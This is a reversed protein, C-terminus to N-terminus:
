ADWALYLQNPGIVNGGHFVVPKDPDLRFEPLRKLMEEYLVQLEIRALHSGLCRHPGTGFAIHVKNERALDYDEPNKFEEPDLDAAPLFMLAMEGAKMEVGEFEVDHKLFRPPVTFTYRRLLEEAAEPVLSPNERLQAQLEPHMALHRVGLGMGNMVTDLGAVTLIVCYNEIDHLTPARGDLETQWLMSIIDERPNDRRDLITERLVMAIKRQRAMTDTQDNAQFPTRLHEDVLKRYEAQRELPLGFMGLFIQVPLPEAVASMFECGGDDKVKEILEVALDRISDKLALVTKPSFTKNLPARYVGHIPPDVTIPLGLLMKHDDDLQENIAKVEEYNFPSNSFSDPDRQAKYVAGHSRVVWHGGHRPTWFVPPANRAIDLIRDHANEILEPDFHFDFDYVLADPVHDPKPAKPTMETATM